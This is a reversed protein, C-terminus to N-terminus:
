RMFYLGNLCFHINALFSLMKLHTATKLYTLIPKFLVLLGFAAIQPLLVKHGIRRDGFTVAKQLGFSVFLGLWFSLGVAVVAGAGLQQAIVIVLLEFVYVSGGIILYRYGPKKLLERVSLNM